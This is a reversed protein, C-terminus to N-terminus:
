AARERERGHLRLLLRVSTERRCDAARGDGDVIAGRLYEEDRGCLNIKDNGRLGFDARGIDDDGVGFTELRAARNRDQAGRGADEGDATIAFALGSDQVGIRKLCAGEIRRTTIQTEDDKRCAHACGRLDSGCCTSASERDFGKNSRWVHGSEVFNVDE